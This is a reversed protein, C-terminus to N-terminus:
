HKGQSLVDWKEGRSFPLFLFLLKPYQTSAGWM